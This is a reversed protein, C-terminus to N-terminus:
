YFNGGTATGRIMDPVDLNGVATVRLLCQGTKMQIDPASAAMAAAQVMASAEHLAVKLAPELRPLKPVATRQALRQARKVMHNNADDSINAMLQPLCPLCLTMARTDVCVESLYSLAVKVLGFARGFRARDTAWSRIKDRTEEPCTPQMGESIYKPLPLPPAGWFALHARMQSETGEPSIKTYARDTGVSGILSQAERLLAIHDPNIFAGTFEDESLVLQTKAYFMDAIKVVSYDLESLTNTRFVPM